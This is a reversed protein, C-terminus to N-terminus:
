FMEKWKYLIDLAERPSLNDINLKRLAELLLSENSFLLPQEILRLKGRLGESNELENLIEQARSIVTSPIGSLQAVYLGYSKDAKGPLVKKLFIVDEGTEKVSVSLNYIGYRTDELHTLEHYHTAFLTKAGIKEATYESVAQAVSLGDFTSTGRGIEDLIVFSKSTANNLINAVELMEVMFTSQGGALDDAAGVRTFVRDVLGIRAKQAPIYSGMQAMLILLANQRMFTSKGGMNPGTIVAFRQEELNMHLDNPVFRLDGLSKEVVPHRGGSIEIDGSDDIQPRIYDNLFAVEALSCLTDLEAVARATSLIREIYQALLSRIRNFEEFEMIFLKDRAGLIKVEYNKLEENIFRETNVLTQRRHYDPPAMGLNSKSIEIFYGFVKNFGVKLYKIGTRQKERNEFDILWNSGQRTIGRLEDIEENFGSRIVDGERASLPADDSIAADLLQHLDALVDMNGGNVLLEAACGRLLDEISPLVASSNKFAVLDRPNATQNAIRAALRELDYIQGLQRNLHKRLTINEKLEAVADLRMEIRDIDKLPQELWQRLMRKGMATSCQDMIALLSGERKGERITSTLELNRRTATDMELFENLSYVGPTKIHSLNGKQTDQLFYILLAAARLGPSDDKIGFGELSLVKFHHTLIRRSEEYSLDPVNQGSILAGWRKKEGSFLEPDEIWEPLLCEAPRLRQMESELMASAREGALETLKFEGTSIDTYALGIVNRDQVVAALYNNRNEDLLFDETVTGPTIIRTVERKVLGKALAPDEVQECIAVRFGRNILRAIYNDASHFPVGCMPIKGDGGERGTLVIELEKSATQADEFFMEYFDGLRFFLIADQHRNKIELYQEIMPTLRAM